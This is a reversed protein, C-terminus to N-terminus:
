GRTSGTALLWPFLSSVEAAPFHRRMLQDLTGRRWHNLHGPTNGLAKVYRGRAVNGMRFFPEYPVTIVVHRRAVRSLERVAQEPHELHELVEFCTLVDFEDDAWPLEYISGQHVELHPFAARMAACGEPEYEVAVVNRGPLRTVLHDTMVGEGAGVDLISDGPGTLLAVRDTCRDMFRRVLGAAVRNQNEYKDVNTAVVHKNLDEIRDDTV